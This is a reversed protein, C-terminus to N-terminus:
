SFLNQLGIELEHAAAEDKKGKAVGATVVRLATKDDDLRRSNRIVREFGGIQNNGIDLSDNHFSGHTRGGVQGSM